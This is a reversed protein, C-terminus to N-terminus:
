VTSNYWRGGNYNLIIIDCRLFKVGKLLFNINVFFAPRLGAM